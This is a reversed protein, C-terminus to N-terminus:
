SLRYGRLRRCRWERREQSSDACVREVQEAIISASGSVIAFTAQVAIFSPRSTRAMVARRIPPRPM